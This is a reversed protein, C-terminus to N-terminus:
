DLMPGTQKEYTNSKTKCTNCTNCSNFLLSSPKTQQNYKHIYIPFPYKYLNSVISWTVQAAKPGEVVPSNCEHTMRVTCCPSSSCTATKCSRSAELARQCWCANCTTRVAVAQRSWSQRLHGRDAFSGPTCFVVRLSWSDWCTDWLPWRRRTPCACDCTTRSAECSTRDACRSRWWCPSCCM